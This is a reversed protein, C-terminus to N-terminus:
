LGSRLDYHGDSDSLCNPLQVRLKNKRVLQWSPKGVSIGFINEILVGHIPRPLM